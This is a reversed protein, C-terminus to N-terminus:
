GHVYGGKREDGRANQGRPGGGSVSDGQRCGDLVDASDPLVSAASSRAACELGAGSCVSAAGFGRGARREFLQYVAAGWGARSQEAGGQGAPGACLDTAPVSGRFGRDVIGRLHYGEEFKSRRRTTSRSPTSGGCRPKISM